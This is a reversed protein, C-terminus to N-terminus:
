PSFLPFLVRDLFVDGVTTFSNEERRKKTSRYIFFLSFWGFFLCVIVYFTLLHRKILLDRGRGVLLRGKKEM